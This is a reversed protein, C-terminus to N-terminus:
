NYNKRKNKCQKLWLCNDHARARRASINHHNKFFLFLTKKVDKV